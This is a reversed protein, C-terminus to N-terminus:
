NQGPLLGEFFEQLGKSDMGKFLEKSHTEEESEGQMQKSQGVVFKWEEESLENNDMGLIDQRQEALRFAEIKREIDTLITRTIKDTIARISKAM